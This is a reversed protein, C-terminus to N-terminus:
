GSYSRPYPPRSEGLSNASSVMVPEVEDGSHLKRPDLNRVERLVVFPERLLRGM